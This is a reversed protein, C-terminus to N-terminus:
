EIRKEEPKEARGDGGFSGASWCASNSRRWRAAATEMAKWSAFSMAAAEEEEEEASCGLACAVSEDEEEIDDVDDDATLM